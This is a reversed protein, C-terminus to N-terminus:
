ENLVMRYEPIIKCRKVFACDYEDAGPPVDFFVKTDRSLPYVVLRMNKGLPSISLRNLGIQWPVNANFDDALLRYDAYLEARDGAYSIHLYLNSLGDLQDFAVPLEWEKFGEYEISGSYLPPEVVRPAVPRDYARMTSPNTYMDTTLWSEDTLFDVVDDNEYEVILRAAMKKEEIVYPFSLFLKNEDKRVYGTLDIVNLCGPTVPQNVWRENVNLECGEEPYIFLMAKKVASSNNLSFEKFFFRHYRQRNAEITKFNATELWRAGTLISRKTLALQADKAQTTVERKDFVGTAANWQYVTAKNQNSLVYVSDASAYLNATTIYLNTGRGTETLWANDADEETLVVLTVWDGLASQLRIRCNKGPKMGTIVTYDPTQRTQFAGPEVTADKVAIEVPIQKNQFLVYTDGIRTLLQATAYKLTMGKMALNFPWIFVTSDEVCFAKSPFQLRENDLGISFRVEKRTPQPFYRGYNIGFLFGSKNDTRVAVQMENKGGKYVVPLMPALQEGFANTFLHLKKVQKYTAAIEGSEKIAAQFDYSRAPVRSWYGTQQQEEENSFLEGRVQTGGAFMYYGLLNSGSGLKATLMGLGDLAGIRLRRHYTNQVGVGMECTFYPYDEYTMYEDRGSIQDNVINKNDRFSDFQFNGPQFEKGVHEAWPADAYGGWLPIFEYPPVSGGGWGTVTYLPVDGGLQMVTQKLWTMHAEGEKAFWYENELQLGIINGGDKYYLGKFQNLLQTFYRKVYMQYVVDNSRDKIFKKKLIWDPTGGNRAEGHAWPGIRPYCLMGHKACLKIFARIDKDGSWNFQGEIEEHQNWFLYTSIINVGCAKMKLIYDEWMDRNVRSFHLEGMIPLCPKGGLTLYLSNPVIEKGTPGANGMKLHGYRPQRMVNRADIVFTQAKVGYGIAMLLLFAGYCLGYKRM